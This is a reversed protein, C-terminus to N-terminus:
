QLLQKLRAYKYDYYIAFLALISLAMFLINGVSSFDTAWLNASSNIFLIVMEISAIAYAWKKYKKLGQILKINIFLFIISAPSIIYFDSLTTQGTLLGAIGALHAIVILILMVLTFLTFGLVINRLNVEM